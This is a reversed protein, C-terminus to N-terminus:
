HNRTSHSLAHAVRGAASTAPPLALNGAITPIAHAGTSASALPAAPTATNASGTPTSVHPATPPAASSNARPGTQAGGTASSGLSTSLTQNVNILQELSNVQVLQNIYENPDTNATPDQNKMETVLLTLFDNGSINAGDSGATGSSGSATDPHATANAALSNAPITHNWIGSTAM